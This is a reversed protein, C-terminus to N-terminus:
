WCRILSRYPENLENSIEWEGPCEVFQEPISHSLHQHAKASIMSRQSKLCRRRISQLAISETSVCGDSTTRTIILEGLLTNAINGPSAFDQTARKRHGTAWDIPKFEDM